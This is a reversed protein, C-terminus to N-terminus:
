IVDCDAGYCYNPAFPDPTSTDGIAAVAGVRNLITSAPFVPAGEENLFSQPGGLTGLDVVKYHHHKPKNETESNQASSVFPLALAACLSCISILFLLSKKM